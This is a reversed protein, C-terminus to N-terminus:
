TADVARSRRRGRLAAQVHQLVVDARTRQTIRQRRTAFLADDAIGSFPLRWLLPALPSNEALWEPLVALLDGQVCIELGVRLQDVQLAVNRPVEVPWGDLPKGAADLPPAVFPHAVVRSAAVRRRGFLPHGRGCYVFARVTGLSTTEVGEAGHLAADPGHFCIDLDGRRLAAANDGAPTQVQPLLRPHERRMAALAPVLVATTIAGASAIRVPGVLDDSVLHDAAEDITRMAIRLAELLRRGADNLEIRRGARRFLRVGLDRELQKVARSLAPASLYLARAASPLHCSEAVARFAPLWNWLRSLRRLREMPQLHRSDERRAVIRYGGEGSPENGATPVLPM